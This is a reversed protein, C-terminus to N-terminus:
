TLRVERRAHRWIRKGLRYQTTERSAQHMTHWVLREIHLAENFSGDAEELNHEHYCRDFDLCERYQDIPEQLGAIEYELELYDSILLPLKDSNPTKWEIWLCFTVVGFAILLLQEM